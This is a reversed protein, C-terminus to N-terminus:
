SDTAAKWRPEIIRRMETMVKYPAAIITDTEEVKDNGSFDTVVGGAERM